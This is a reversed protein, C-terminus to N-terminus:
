GIAGGKASDPQPLGAIPHLLRHITALLDEASFPKLLFAPALRRVILLDGENADSRSLGSMALLPVDPRLQLLARILAEGGVRPMDIDTIVLSIEDAHINFVRIADLGDACGTVRYGHKRLISGVIDRIPADDDVVLILEGKGAPTAFTSATSPKPADSELAPLFIRFTTGRGMKTQVEIL